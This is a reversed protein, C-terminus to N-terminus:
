AGRICARINGSIVGRTHCRGYSVDYKPDKGLIMLSLFLPPQDPTKPGSQQVFDTKPRTQSSWTLCEPYEGFFDMLSLIKPENISGEEIQYYIIYNEIRLWEVIM